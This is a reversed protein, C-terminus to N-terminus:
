QCRKIEMDDTLEIEGDIELEVQLDYYNNHIKTKQNTTIGYFLDKFIKISFPMLYNILKRCEDDTLQYVPEPHQKAIDYIYIKALRISM